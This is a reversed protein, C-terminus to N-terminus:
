IDGHRAVELRSCFPDCTRRRGRQTAALSVLSLTLLTAITPEPVAAAHLNEALPLVEVKGYNKQWVLFDHGDSDGDDDADSLGNVGFDGVWQTLDEGDVVGNDDFDGPVGPLVSITGNTLLQSTDWHVENPLRVRDFAGNFVDFSLLQFSTGVPPVFEGVLDVELSGNAVFTDGILQDFGVGPALGALELEITGASSNTLADFSVSATSNVSSSGPAITGENFLSTGIHAGQEALLTHGDRLFMNGTGSFSAGAFVYVNGHFSVPGNITNMGALRIENETEIKTDIVGSIELSAGSLQRVSNARLRGGSSLHVAAGPNLLWTVDPVSFTGGFAEINGDFGIISPPYRVEIEGGGTARLVGTGLAGGLDPANVVTDITIKGNQAWILGDNVLDNVSILGRGVIEGSNGLKGAGSLEGGILSLSGQHNADHEVSLKAGGAVSVISTPAFDIEQQDIVAHGTGVNMVGGLTLRGTGPGGGITATGSGEFFINSNAGLEAAQRFAITNGSGLVLRGDYADALLGDIVLAATGDIATLQASSENGTGDLDIRSAGLSNQLNLIGGEAIIEGNSNILTTGSGLLSVRGRGRITGSTNRLLGRVDVIGSSMQLSSGSLNLNHARVTSTNFVSHAAAILQTTSGDLQITGTGDPREVSLINGGTSLVAGSRMELEDIEATNAGLVVLHANGILAQDNTTPVGTPTWASADHWLSDGPGPDWTKTVAWAGVSSWTTAILLCTACCHTSFVRSDQLRHCM